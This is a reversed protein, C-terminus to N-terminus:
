GQTGAGQPWPDGEDIGKAYLWDDEVILQRLEGAENELTVLVKIKEDDQREECGYDGEQIRKVKWSMKQEEIVIRRCETAQVSM